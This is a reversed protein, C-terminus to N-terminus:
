LIGSFTAPHYVAQLEKETSTQKPLDHVTPLYEFSWFRDDINPVHRTIGLREQEDTLRWAHKKADDYDSPLYSKVLDNMGKYEEKLPDDDANTPPSPQPNERHVVGFEESLDDYQEQLKKMEEEQVAIEARKELLRKMLDFEFAQLEDLQICMVYIREQEIKEEQTKSVFHLNFYYAARSQRKVRNCSDVAILCREGRARLEKERDNTVTFADFFARHDDYESLDM